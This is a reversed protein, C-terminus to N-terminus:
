IIKFDETPKKKSSRATRLEEAFEQQFKTWTAQIKAAGSRSDEASARLGNAIKKARARNLIGKINALRAEMQDAAWNLEIYFDHYEKRADNCYQRFEENNSLENEALGEMRKTM